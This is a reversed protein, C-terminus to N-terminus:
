DTLEFVERIANVNVEPADTLRAALLEYLVAQMKDARLVKALQAATELQPFQGPPGTGAPQLQGALAPQQALQGLHHDLAGQFALHIVVEAIALRVGRAAIAAVGTIPVPGLRRLTDRQHEGAVQPDARGRGPEGGREGADDQGRIRAEARGQGRATPNARALPSTRSAPGKM